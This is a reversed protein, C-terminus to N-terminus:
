FVNVRYKALLVHTGSWVPPYPNDATVGEKNAFYQYNLSFNKYGVSAGVVYGLKWQAKNEVHINTPAADPSSRWGQVDVSWTNKFLYPGAEVGFRWGGLNYHPELTLIFGSNHGSGLYNAMPWCAGNCSKTQLNYNADSPTALGQTHVTALWVYDAHWALGWRPRSLIDGTLGVEIAPATLHLNHEFGDQIWLGDPGRQYASGGIGAEIEFFTKASANQITLALAAGAVLATLKAKM